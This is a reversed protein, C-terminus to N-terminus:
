PSVKIRLWQDDNSEYQKNENTEETAAHLQPRLPLWSRRLNRVLWPLLNWDWLQRLKM